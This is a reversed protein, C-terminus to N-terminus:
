LQKKLTTLILIKDIIMNYKTVDHDFKNATDQKYM